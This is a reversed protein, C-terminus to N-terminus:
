QLAASSGHGSRLVTDGIISVVTMWKNGLCLKGLRKPERDVRNLAPFAIADWGCRIKQYQSGQENLLTGDNLIQALVVVLIRTVRQCM